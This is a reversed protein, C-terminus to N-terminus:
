RVSRGDMRGRESFRFPRSPAFRDERPIGPAAVRPDLQVLRRRRVAMAGARGRAYGARQTRAGKTSSSLPMCCGAGKASAFPAYVVRRREDPVFPAFVCWMGEKVDWNFSRKCFGFVQPLMSKSIGRKLGYASVQLSLIFVLFDGGGGGGADLQSMGSASLWRLEPM